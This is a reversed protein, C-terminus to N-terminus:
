QEGAEGEEKQADREKEEEEEEKKQQQQEEEERKRKRENQKLECITRGADLLLRQLSENKNVLGQKEEKLERRKRKCEEHLGEKGQQESTAAKIQTTATKARELEEALSANEEKTRQLLTDKENQAQLFRHREEDM